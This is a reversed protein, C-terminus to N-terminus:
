IDTYYNANADVGLHWKGIFDIIENNNLDYTTDAIIKGDKDISGWKGNINVSAFGYENQETADDYKYDVIVEGRNNIFGYKGDKRDLFIINKTLIETNKKEEFKFNYYKYEGNKRLRFYGKDIDLKSLIGSLKIEFNNNIIDSLIEGDKDAILINAEKRYMINIYDFALKTEGNINIIGYKNNQKAIYNDDFTYILDDYISDIIQESSINIVGYKNNNKVIINSNNISKVEDFNNTINISKDKNIISWKNDSKVVYIDKANIQQIDDYITELTTTKDSSEIGYKGEDNKVIFEKKNDEGLNKIEKYEPNIKINGYTNCIGCKNDKTIVICDPVGTLATIDDYDCSLITKGKGDILGFKSDKGVKYVNNEYWIQGNKYQNPIAEVSDYGTLIEEGKDNIAKTKYTNNDYNVDYTCIFIPNQKNPVLIMEEYTPEVIINGNNDIVGWKEGSYISFYSVADAVTKETQKSDNLLKTLTIIFMIIVAMAVTVGVVKKINLKPKEYRKGEM